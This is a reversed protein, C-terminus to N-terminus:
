HCGSCGDCCGDGCSDHDHGCGCGCSHQHVEMDEAKADRVTVVKGVYKVTKGALPHNFDITVKDETVSLVIGHVRYGEETMMPLVNGVYVMKSDFEGDENCFIEKDLEMVYEELHAGFAQEPSFTMEFTDGEKLGQLKREFEPLVDKEVGYVFKDPYEETFKMMLANESKEVEYVDYALAIFKGPKITEM